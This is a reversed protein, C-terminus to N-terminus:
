PTNISPWEGGGCHVLNVRSTAGYPVGNRAFWRSMEWDEPHVKAEFTGDQKRVIEDRINFCLREAWEHRIDLLLLGTNILLRQGPKADASLFTAHTTPTRLHEITGDAHEVATSTKGTNNKIPIIASIAHLSYTKLEHLLLEPWERDTPVVDDHILFLHTIGDKRRNLADAYISNFNFTLLSSRNTRQCSTAFRLRAQILTDSIRHDFRGDRTPIGFYPVIDSV